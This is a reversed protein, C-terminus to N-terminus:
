NNRLFYFSYGLQLQHFNQDINGVQSNFRWRAFLKGNTGIKVYAMLELTNIRSSTKEDAKLSTDLTELKPDSFASSFYKIRDSILVSFREEPFFQLVVEPYFTFYNIGFENVLGTTEITNQSNLIRISDQVATRGFRFGGNLYFHYKLDPNDLFLLNLDLGLSLNQHYYVQLPSVKIGQKLSETGGATTIISDNTQPLLLRNNEEIKSIVVSPKIYQFFGYGKALWEIKKGTKFRTSNLNIRKTVKTQLLGNANEKDFGLFDSFVVAEFLKSTEEKKLEIKQGGYSSIVQNKPSFDRTMAKVAYDYDLLEGAKIYYSEKTKSDFLANTILNRYNQRTSFGIGYKNEFRGTRPSKGTENISGVVKITEIYGEYFEIEIDNISVTGVIPDSSPKNKGKYINVSKAISLKGALPADSLSEKLSEAVIGFFLSKGIESLQTNEAATTVITLMGTLKSKFAVNFTKLKLPKLTFDSKNTDSEEISIKFAGSEQRESKISYLTTRFTFSGTYNQGYAFATCILLSITLLYRM